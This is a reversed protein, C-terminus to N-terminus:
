CSPAGPYTHRQAGPIQARVAAAELPLAMLVVIRNLVVTNGDSYQLSSPRM